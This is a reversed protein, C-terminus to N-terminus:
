RNQALTTDVARAGAQRIAELQAPSAAHLEGENSGFVGLRVAERAEARVQARPLMSAAAQTPSAEGYSALLAGRQAPAAMAPLEARATSSLMPAAPFDQTGEQAFVSAAGTLALITTAITLRTNM